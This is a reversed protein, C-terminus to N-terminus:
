FAFVVIFAKGSSLLFFSDQPNMRLLLLSFVIFHGSHPASNPKLSTSYTSLAQSPQSIIPTRNQHLCQRFCTYSRSGISPFFYSRNMSGCGFTQNPCTSARCLSRSSVSSIVLCSFTSKAWSIRLLINFIKGESKM